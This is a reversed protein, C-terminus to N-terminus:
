PTSSREVERPLRRYIILASAPREKLTVTLGKDMLSSGPVVDTGQIDANTLAYRAQPDLGHLHVTISAESCLDRRFLQVAGDPGSPRNYQWAIWSERNRSYPTLPYFDALMMPGIEAFEAYVKRQLPSTGVTGFGAMYFSRLSYLDPFYCGTGQFPLWASLSLTEGQNGEVVEPMDPFQFDSRLLPVARRMSELDNRRGGSACSDIHLGPNRRRLEDWFALHGQVYLNETMGQREPADNRVWAPYPGGGNMDERYWDLGQTKVMQDVHDTLWKLAEPNGLNLLSGHSEGPLLWEPHTRGLWSNPDGVREPEFWLLFQMGQKRVWSSFPTFGDPYKAPDPDWTGTNLWVDGGKYPGGSSPYWTGTGGADRWCIDPRIGADLVAQIGPVNAMSGEVQIQSVPGQPTGQTRPITYAMYWRRWLNQSRITDSGRYLLIATLPTRIEEGPRLSLHTRKQGAKVQVASGAEDGRHFEAAWEGPWGVAILAGGGPMQLNFYPWGNPGDCSKGSGPPGFRKSLGPTVKLDYPEYSEPSCYDGRLGHLVYESNPSGSEGLRTDLGQVSELIPTSATSTNKITVTWELAPYEIYQVLAARVQLGTAPDSWTLTRKIRRNELVAESKQLPWKALLESSSKGGYIFSFPLRRGPRNLSFQREAWSNAGRLEAATPSNSDTRIPISPSLPREGHLMKIGQDVLRLYWDSPLGEYTQFHAQTPPSSTVKFIATGEDVEDFMGIYAGQKRDNGDARALTALRYFQEWLFDGGRRAIASKGPPYGFMNDWGFGPYLSPIWLIHMEKCARLDDQWYGTSASKVGVGDVSYNGINWPVYADMKPMFAHWEPDPNQRWNWDGGGVFYAQYKGPQHFFAILLNALEATMRNSSNKYYFGWVQVVPKGGDHLYSPDRTIGEDVMRKWDSILIKYISATEAGAIDYSLAWVRGTHNAAARVNQLVRYRSAYRDSVPGGPLDVVFHQLWAGDINYDRMWEFHRQVTQSNESSFLDAKRGDPYTFDGAPFREAKPYESMDPWLEFTLSAPTIKQPDRSWHIWGLKSSDGACRFWGQYGCMVKGRLGTAPVVRVIQGIACRPTALLTLLLIVLFLGGLAAPNLIFRFKSPRLSIEKVRNLPLRCPVQGATIMARIACNLLLYGGVQAVSVM